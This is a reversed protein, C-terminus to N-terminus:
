NAIKRKSKLLELASRQSEINKEQAEIEELNKQLKKELSAKEDQLDKYKKEAKVVADDQAKIQLELNAEEIDPALDSMFSKIRRIEDASMTNILDEGNKNVVLYLTSEDKDKRSKRDVKLIYDLREESIETVFADKVVIFGKDKNFLGKEAKMNHGEKQIRTTIANQVAEQPYAYDIAIARQKKKDYTINTEYAQSFSIVTFMLIFCALFSLRKM